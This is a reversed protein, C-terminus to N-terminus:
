ESQNFDSVQMEKLHLHMMDPNLSQASSIRLISHLHEDTLSRLPSKNMKMLSFLQECLYTSTFVSLIQAAQAHLQLPTDPLFCPFHAACVSDYKLKLTDSCQLEILEMQLNTSARKMDVVIPNSLMEFRCKQSEFDTFRRIFEASLVHLKEARLNKLPRSQRAPIDDPGVSKGSKMRKNAARVEEKNLKDVELKVM